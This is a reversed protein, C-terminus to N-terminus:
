EYFNFVFIENIKRGLIKENINLLNSSVFILAPAIAYWCVVFFTHPKKGTMEKVNDSL